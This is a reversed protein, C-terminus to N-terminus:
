DSLKIEKNVERCPIQRQIENEPAERRLDWRKYFEGERLRGFPLYHPYADKWNRDGGRGGKWGTFFYTFLHIIEEIWFKNM